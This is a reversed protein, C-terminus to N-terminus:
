RRGPAPWLSVLTARHCRVFSPSSLRRPRGWVRAAPDGRGAVRADGASPTLSRVPNGPGVLLLGRSDACSDRRHLFVGECRQPRGPAPRTEGHLSAPESDHGARRKPELGRSPLQVAACVVYQDRPVRQGIPAHHGDIAAPHRKGQARLRTVARTPGIDPHDRRHHDSRPFERTWHRTTARSLRRRTSNRARGYRAAPPPMAGADSIRSTERARQRVNRPPSTPRHNLRYASRVQHSDRQESSMSNAM